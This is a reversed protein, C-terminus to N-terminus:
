NDDYGKRIYEEVEWHWDTYTLSGEKPSDRFLSLVVKGKCRDEERKANTPHRGWGEKCKRQNRRQNQNATNTRHTQDTDCGSSKCTLDSGVSADDDDEKPTMKWARQTLRKLIMSSDPLSEHWTITTRCPQGIRSFPCLPHWVPSGSQNGGTNSPM